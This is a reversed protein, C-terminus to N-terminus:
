QAPPPPPPAPHEKRKPVFGLPEKIFQSHLCQEISFRNDPNLALAGVLLEKLQKVKRAQEPNLTSPMLLKMLDKVPKEDITNIKVTEKKTIKDIMIRMFKFDETFDVPRGLEIQKQMSRKILKNPFRGLIEMFRRLMDNNSNGPFMVKGVYLEFLCTAISWLDISYEYKLCLTIEPARYWRSVLYPTIDCENIYSGSGFDCVKIMNHRENILINDPKIDAHVIKNKRLHKLAIFMQKAFVQVGEINIGRNHGFKKIVERLNMAMPEFVLCMHGHHQFNDTLAVVYHKDAGGDKSLIQLFELEKGAAKAMMDNNRIIKIAANGGAEKDKAGLVTSFVGKGLVKNVEYRENFTEGMQFTLYGEKDDFNDAMMKNDGRDLAKAAGAAVDEANEDFMNYVNGAQLEHGKKRRPSPFKMDKERELKEDVDGARQGEEDSSSEADDNGRSRPTIGAALELLDQNNDGDEDDDETKVALETQPPTAEGNQKPAEAKPAEPEPEPKVEPEAAKKAAAEAKIREMREKREQRAKEARTEEDDVIENDEM